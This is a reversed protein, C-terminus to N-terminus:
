QALMLRQYVEVTHLASNRASLEKVRKRAGDSLRGRLKKDKLIRGVADALADADDPEVLLGSADDQVVEPIAGARTAVVPSGHVFAELPVLGFSEYRSPFLVCVAHALLKERTADDVEGLFVMRSHLERPVESRFRSAWDEPDRGGIVLVAKPDSALIKPAAALITDIGKRRELRGIFVVLKANKVADSKLAELEPFDDYGGNVDFTPWPAIGCPGVSWREDRVLDHSQAVTSSIMQSIPIIADANRLLTREGEVFHAIQDPSPKWGNISASVEFPTVLRVVLPPRDEILSFALTEADWLASDVVDIPRERHIASIKALASLSWDMNGAFGDAAVPLAFSKQQTFYVAFRGQRHVKDEGGPVVVSVQHGLLLL